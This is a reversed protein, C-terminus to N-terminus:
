GNLFYSETGSLDDPHCIDPLSLRCFQTGGKRKLIKSFELDVERFLVVFGQLMFYLFDPRLKARVGLFSSGTGNKNNRCIGVRM